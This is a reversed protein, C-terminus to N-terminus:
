KRTNNKILTVLALTPALVLLIKGIFLKSLLGGSLMFTMFSVNLFIPRIFLFLFKEDYKIKPLVCNWIKEAWKEKEIIRCICLFDYIALSLLSITAMISIILQM